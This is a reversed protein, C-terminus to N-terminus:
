FTSRTLDAGAEFCYCYPHGAGISQDPKFTLESIGETVRPRAYRDLSFAWIEDEFSTTRTM